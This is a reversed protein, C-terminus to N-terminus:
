PDLCSKHFIHNCDLKIIENNQYSIEELCIPCNENEFENNPLYIECNKIEFSNNLELDLELNRENRKNKNYTQYIEKIVERIIIGVFIFLALCIIALFTYTFYICTDSDGCRINSEDCETNNYNNFQTCNSNNM